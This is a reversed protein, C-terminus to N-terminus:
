QNILNLIHCAAIGATETRLRSPGLGVRVFGSDSALKLEGSSFDGEPGIMVIYSANPEAIGKLQEPNHGDVHCIFKQANPRNTIFDKAWIPENIIPLYLNESQKAASIAKLLIRETKLVKRESNDCILFSMEQVGIEVAKEVYWEVRDMSKTPSLAMHIYHKPQPQKHSNLIKFSCKKHNADVLECEYLNGKGDTVSIPDGANKRM